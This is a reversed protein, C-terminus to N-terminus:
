FQGVNIQNTIKRAKIAPLANMIYSTLSRVHINVETSSEFIQRDATNNIMALVQGNNNVQHVIQTSSPDGLAVSYGGGNSQQVAAAATTATQEGGTDVDALGANSPNVQTTAPLWQGADNMTLQTVLEMAGNVTSRVTLGFDFVVGGIVMGGRMQDLDDNDVPAFASFVDASHARADVKDSGLSVIAGFAAAGIILGGLALTTKNNNKLISQM